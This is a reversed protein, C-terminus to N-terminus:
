PPQPQYLGERGMRVSLPMLARERRPANPSDHHALRQIAASSAKPQPLRKCRPFDYARFPWTSDISKTPAFIFAFTCPERGVGYLTDISILGSVSACHSCTISTSPRCAIKAAFSSAPSIGCSISVANSAAPTGSNGLLARSIVVAQEQGSEALGQLCM